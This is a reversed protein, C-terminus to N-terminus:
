LRLFRDNIPASLLVDQKINSPQIEYSIVVWTWIKKLGGEVRKWRKHWCTLRIRRENYLLSSLMRPYKVNMKRGSSYAQFLLDYFWNERNKIKIKLDQRKM